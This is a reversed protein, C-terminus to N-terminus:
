RETEGQASDQARGAKEALGSVGFRRALEDSVESLDIDRYVLLVLLHYILDAAERVTHERGPQGPEGAAEVVEDAEERLKAAIKDLGANLLKTTYSGEPRSRKREALVRGLEILIRDADGPM